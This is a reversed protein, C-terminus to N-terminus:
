ERLPMGRQYRSDIIEPLLKEMYFKTLKSEMKTQWFLQDRPIIEWAMGKPTWIVLICFKRQTVELQEQIQYYYDSNRKLLIKNNETLTCYKLINKKIADVPTM